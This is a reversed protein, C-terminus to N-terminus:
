LPGCGRRKCSSGSSKKNSRQMFFISGINEKTGDNEEREIKRQIGSFPQIKWSGTDYEHSKLAKMDEPSSNFSLKMTEWLPEYNVM